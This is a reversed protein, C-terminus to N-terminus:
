SAPAVLKAQRHAVRRLQNRGKLKWSVEDLGGAPGRGVKRQESGPGIDGPHLRAIRGIWQKGLHQRYSRFECRRLTKRGIGYTIALGRELRPEQLLVLAPREEHCGAGACDVAAVAEPPM